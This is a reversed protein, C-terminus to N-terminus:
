KVPVIRWQQQYGNGVSWQSVWGGNVLASANDLAKGSQRNVIKFYGGGVDVFDWQQSAAGTAAGQVVYAGNANAAVNDLV